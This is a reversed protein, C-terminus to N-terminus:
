PWKGKCTKKPWRSRRARHRRSASTIRPDKGRTRHVMEDATERRENRSQAIQILADPPKLSFVRWAEGRWEVTTWDNGPAYPLPPFSHSRYRLRNESDWIQSIM